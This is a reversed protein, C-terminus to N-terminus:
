TTSSSAAGSWRRPTTPARRPLAPRRRHLDDAPLDRRPRRQRRLARADVGRGPAVARRRIPGCGASAAEQLALRRRPLLEDLQVLRADARRPWLPTDPPRRPVARPHGPAAPLERVPKCASFISLPVVITRTWSSMAYLNVYFWRPLLVLEPPVSPCNAYPFQGLLALYFKTFSNCRAPAAPPSSPRARASWTTPTPTTAPSSSPSTRRSPSASNSRAAPTTAGAATPRSSTAPRLPGGQPAQRRTRRPRPLGPPPRIRIRPHHRGAARRGLPRRATAALAPPRARRPRGSRGHGYEDPPTGSM